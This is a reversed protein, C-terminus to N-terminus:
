ILNPTKCSFIHVGSGSDVSMYDCMFLDRAFAEYDIYFRLNEPIEHAYCDDFLQEAYALESDYEGCYRNEIADNAEDLDGYYNYAASALEEGHEEVFEALAHVENIGCYEGIRINGFGEYDHIAYEEADEIPSQALMQWIEKNIEDISQTADIWRGHLFGSNYAALCAVYIRPTTETSM